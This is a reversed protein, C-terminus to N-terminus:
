IKKELGFDNQKETEPIKNGPQVYDKTNNGYTSDNLVFSEYHKSSSLM